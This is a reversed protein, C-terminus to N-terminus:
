RAKLEATPTLPTLEGSLRMRYIPVSEMVRMIYNRTETFPVHEIWDVPDVSQRRPDGYRDLWARVRGPGANYGAAVLPINDGFEQKLHALYASGLHANYAPDRLLCPLCYERGTKRAMAQATGPLLQMLGYAGAPSVVKPDFESERRAVSLALAMEVPLRQRAMPAIPYYARHLMGGQAAAYKAVMLAIHPENLKLALDALQGHETPTLTESLHVFWREALDLEGAAQLLLGAYFVTSSVFGAQRWLPYDEDGLLGADTPAGIREAALQGYFSTQHRAGAAYAARAETRMGMAEYARGIWYGARGKSIPSRVANEHRKFHRVADGPRNLKRLAVYGALWELDAYDRGDSLGHAAALDYARRGNGDRMLQRAIRGRREAWIEPRGLNGTQAIALEAASEMRGKRARWLFREYALGPHERLRAPVAQVLADVGRVQRHLGIRANALAIQDENAYKFMRQAEAFRTRWLLMELRAIHHPHLLQGYKAEFVAQEQRTMTLERWARIIQSGAQARRGSADLAEAYRLAGHATRPAQDSFFRLVDEPPANQPIVKEGRQRLLPLGPWDGYRDMFTLYAALTGQGARLRHWDLVAQAIPDSIRPLAGWDEARVQKMGVALERVVRRDTQAVAMEVMLPVGLLLMGMRAPILTM